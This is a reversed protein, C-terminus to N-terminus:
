GDTFWDARESSPLDDTVLLLEVYAAVVAVAAARPVNELKQKELFM